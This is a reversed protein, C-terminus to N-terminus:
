YRLANISISIIKSMVECQEDIQKDSLVFNCDIPNLVENFLLDLENSNLKGIQGLMMEKQSENLSGKYSDRKGVKLKNVSNFSDGFYEMTYNLVDRVLSSAYIVTPVGIAIVNAWEICADLAKKDFDDTDYVIWVHKYGNPNSRVLNMTKDLLSLTNDGAGHVDLQIKDRYQSNIIDRIAEFYQPETETGETVILHYEPRILINKDRRPKMWSKGLDSKKPPKLSM